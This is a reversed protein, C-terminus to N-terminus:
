ELTINKWTLVYDVYGEVKLLVLPIYCLKSINNYIHCHVKALLCFIVIENNLIVNSRNYTLRFLSGYAQTDGRNEINHITWTRQEDSNPDEM